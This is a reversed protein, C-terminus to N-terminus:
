DWYEGGGLARHLQYLEARIQALGSKLVDAAMAAPLLPNEVLALFDDAKDILAALPESPIDPMPM